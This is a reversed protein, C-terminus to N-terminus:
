DLIWKFNKPFKQEGVSIYDNSVDELLRRPEVSLGRKNKEIGFDMWYSYIILHHFYDFNNRYAYRLISVWTNHILYLHGHIKLCNIKKFWFSVVQPAYYNRVWESKELLCTLRSVYKSFINWLIVNVITWLVWSNENHFIGYHKILTTTRM